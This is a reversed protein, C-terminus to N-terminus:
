HGVVAALKLVIYAVSTYLLICDSKLYVVAENRQRQVERNREEIQKRYNSPIQEQNILLLTM